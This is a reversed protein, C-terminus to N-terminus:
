FAPPAIKAHLAGGAAFLTEVYDPGVTDPPPWPVATDRVIDRVRDGSVRGQEVFTLVVQL